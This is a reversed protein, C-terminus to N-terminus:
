MFTIPNRNGSGGDTEQRNGAAPGLLTRRSVTEQRHRHNHNFLSLRREVQQSPYDRKPLKAAVSFLSIANFHPLIPIGLTPFVVIKLQMELVLPSVFV